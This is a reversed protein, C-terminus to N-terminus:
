EDSEETLPTYTTDAETTDVYALEAPLQPPTLGRRRMQTRVEKLADGISHLTQSALRVINAEPSGPSAVFLKQLQRNNDSWEAVLRDHRRFMRVAAAGEMPATEPDDGPLRSAEGTFWQLAAWTNVPKGPLVETTEELGVPFLLQVPPVKLIRAIVLLEVVSLAPRRGGEFNALVSRKIPLGYEETCIDALKQVSIGRELRYRRM